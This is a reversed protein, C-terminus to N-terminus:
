RYMIVPNDGSALLAFLHTLFILVTWLERVWMYVPYVPFFHQRDTMEFEERLKSSLSSFNQLYVGWNIPLFAPWIKSNKDLLQSILTKRHQASHAPHVRLDTLLIEARKSVILPLLCLHCCFKIANASLFLFNTLNTAGTKPPYANKLTFFDV